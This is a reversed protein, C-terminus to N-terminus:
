QKAIVSESRRFVRHMGEYLIFYEYKGRVTKRIREPHNKNKKPYERRKLRFNLYSKRSVRTMPQNVFHRKLFLFADFTFYSEVGLTLDM